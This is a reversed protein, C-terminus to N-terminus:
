AKPPPSAATAPNITEFTQNSLAPTYSGDIFNPIQTLKTKSGAPAKLSTM